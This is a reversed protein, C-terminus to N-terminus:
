AEDDDLEELEDDLDEDDLEDDLEEDYLVELVNDGLLFGFDAEDICSFIAAGLMSPHRVPFPCHVGLYSVAFSDEEVILGQKFKLEIGDVEFVPHNLHDQKLWVYKSNEGLVKELLAKARDPDHNGQPMVKLVQLAGIAQAAISLGEPMREVRRIDMEKYAETQM